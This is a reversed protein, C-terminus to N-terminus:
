DHEVNLRSSRRRHHGGEPSGEARRKGKPAAPARAPRAVAAGSGAILESAARNGVASQLALVEDPSRPDRGPSVAPVPAARDTRNVTQTRQPNNPKVERWGAM